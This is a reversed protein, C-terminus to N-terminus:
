PEREDKMKMVAKTIFVRRACADSIIRKEIFEITKSTKADEVMSKLIEAEQDIAKKKFDNSDEFGVAKFLTSENHKYIMGENSVDEAAEGTEKFVKAVLLIESSELPTNNFLKEIITNTKM